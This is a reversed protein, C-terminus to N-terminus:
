ETVFTCEAGSGARAAIDAPKLQCDIHNATFYISGAAGDGLVGVVQLASIVRHAKIGHVIKHPGGFDFDCSAATIDVNSWRCTVGQANIYLPARSAFHTDSPWTGNFIGAIRSKQASSLVTSVEAIEGSLLVAHAGTSDHDMAYAPLNFLLGSILIILGSRM